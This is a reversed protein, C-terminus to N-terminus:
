HKLPLVLDLPYEALIEFSGDSRAWVTDELRVGLRREPYYLGPEITVVVGPSLLDADTANKGSWPREHVHLGLGHSISHVYGIQTQPDSKVSPHGKAEFLECTRKQYERCPRGLQLERMIQRYVALVDEYLAHTEDTAYGLSWTRTFDYYYGGGGECPFIDFVITQGQCILDGPSGSSHPVGADHGIAFITGEPNEAGREALWLNIRNKVDGITLPNGDNKVLVEQSSSHSSLFEAVLGVVEVTIKGMRRMREVETEDKTAMAALLLSDTYEGIITLGPLLRQLGSFFAYSTGADSLGCLAVRGSTVGMDSFIQRYRLVIAQLYDGHAEKLLDDLPYDALNKVTLGTKIAEEREMPNCFLVPPQGRKKFLDASTLHVGGTFYYMAPNHQAPGTVLLADIDRAQMLSDLDTKM